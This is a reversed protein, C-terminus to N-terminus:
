LFDIAHNFSKSLVAQNNTWQKNTETFSQQYGKKNGEPIQQEHSVRYYALKKVEMADKKETYDVFLLSRYQQAQLVSNTGNWMTGTVSQNPRFLGQGCYDSVPEKGVSLRAGTRSIIVEKNERYAESVGFPIM